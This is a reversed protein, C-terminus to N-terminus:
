VKWTQNFVVGVEDNHSFHFETTLNGNSIAKLIQTIKALPYLILRNLFFLLIVAMVAFNIAGAIYAGFHGKIVGTSNIFDNLYDAIPTGLFVALFIAIVIKFRLSNWLRLDKFTKIKAM